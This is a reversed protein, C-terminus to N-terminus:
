GAARRPWARSAVTAWFVLLDVAATPVNVALSVAAQQPSYGAWNGAVVGAYLAAFLLALWGAGFHLGRRRSWLAFAILAAPVVYMAAYGLGAVPGESNPVVAMFVAVAAHAVALAAAIFPLRATM